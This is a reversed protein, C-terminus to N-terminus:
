DKAKFVGVFIAIEPPVKILLPEKFGKKLAEDYVKKATEGSSIVTRDRPSRLAVWKGKYQSYIKTMDIAKM